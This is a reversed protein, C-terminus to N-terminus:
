STDWLFETSIGHGLMSCLWVESSLFIKRSVM